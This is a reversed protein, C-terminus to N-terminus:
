DRPIIATIAGSTTEQVRRNFLFRQGDHSVAYQNMYRQFATFHLGTSFLAKPPDFQFSNGEKLAVAMLMGNPTLYFLERGDGRWLPLLGGQDSIQWKRDGSPFDRVYVEFRGTEDSTYAIWRPSTKTDGPSFHGDADTYDHQL